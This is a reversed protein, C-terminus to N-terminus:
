YDPCYFHLLFQKIIPNPPSSFDSSIEAYVSYMTSNRSTDSNLISVSKIWSMYSKIQPRSLGRQISRLKSVGGGM